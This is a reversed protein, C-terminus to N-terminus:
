VNLSLYCWLLLSRAQSSPSKFLLACFNFPLRRYCRSMYAIAGMSISSSGVLLSHIQDDYVVPGIHVFVGGWKRLLEVTQSPGLTEEQVAITKYTVKLRKFADQPNTFVLGGNDMEFLRRSSLFLLLNYAPFQPDLNILELAELNPLPIKGYPRLMGFTDLDAGSEMSLSDLTLHTLFPLGCLVEALEEGKMCGCGNRIRLLRLTSHCKSREVFSLITDSFEWEEHLDHGHDFEVDLEVLQPTILVGLVDISPPYVKQLRM